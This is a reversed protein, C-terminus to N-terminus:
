ANEPDEVWNGYDLERPYIHENMFLELRARLALVKESPEFDM